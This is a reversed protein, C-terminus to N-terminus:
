NYDVQVNLKGSYLGDTTGAPITLKGGVALTANGSSDLSGPASRDAAATTDVTLNGGPGTLTVTNDITYKLQQDPTGVITFTAAGPSGSCVLTGCNPTGTADIEVVDGAFPGVITGFDLNTQFTVSLPSVINAFADAQATNAALAPTSLALAALAGASILLKKM